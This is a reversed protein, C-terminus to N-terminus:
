LTDVQRLLEASREDPLWDILKSFLYVFLMTGLLSVTFCVIFDATTMKYNRGADAEDMRRLLTAHRQTDLLYERGDYVRRITM